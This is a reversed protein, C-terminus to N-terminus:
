AAFEAVDFLENRIIWCKENCRKIYEQEARWDTWRKNYDAISEGDNRLLKLPTNGCYLEKLTKPLEPLENIKTYECYLCTLTKPLEPLESINTTFCYLRELTKPLEPLISINTHSCYLYTLTKPLEPLSTINLWSVNLKGDKIASIRTLLEITDPGYVM